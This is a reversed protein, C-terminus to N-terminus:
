EKMLWDHFFEVAKKGERKGSNANIVKLSV